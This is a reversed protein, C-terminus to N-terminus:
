NGEIEATFNYHGYLADYKTYKNTIIEVRSPISNLVLEHSLQDSWNGIAVKHSFSATDTNIDSNEMLLETAYYTDAATDAFRDIRNKSTMKFGAIFDIPTLEKQM